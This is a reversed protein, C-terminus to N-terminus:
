PRQVTGVTGEEFFVPQGDAKSSLTPTGAAHGPFTHMTRVVLSVDECIANASLRLLRVTSALLSVKVGPIGSSGVAEYTISTDHPRLPRDVSLVAVINKAHEPTPTPFTLVVSHKLHPPAALAENIIETAEGDFTDRQLQVGTGKVTGSSRTRTPAISTPFFLLPVIHARLVQERERLVDVLPKFLKAGAALDDAMAWALQEDDNQTELTRSDHKSRTNSRTVGGYGREQEHIREGLRQALLLKEFSVGLAEGQQASSSAVRELSTHAESLSYLYNLTVWVWGDCKDPEMVKAPVEEQGPARKVRAMMFITVYHKGEDSPNADLHPVNIATLFAVSCQGQLDVTNADIIIGTEERIERVICDEWSEQWELHGGPLALTGSGHSGKRKGILVYGRDDTVFAAVGVRPQRSAALPLSSSSSPPPAMSLSKTSFALRPLFGASVKVISLVQPFKDAVM